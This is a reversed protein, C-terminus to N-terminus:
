IDKFLQGDEYLGMSRSGKMKGELEVKEKLVEKEAAKLDQMIFKVQKIAGVIQGINNVPKGKDDREELLVDTKTLYESVDNAAKLANQYLKGIVTLSMKNYFEVADKITEDFKWDDSLGIDKRIEEIRERENSIHNYDSKIDCFYYIFLMDKFAQEKNRSKDKKLIKKFPLLGWIEPDVHLNYDRMEFAKM